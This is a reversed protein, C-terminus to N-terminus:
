ETNSVGQFCRHKGINRSDTQRRTKWDATSVQETKNRTAYLGGVRKGPDPRHSEESLRSASPYPDWIAALSGARKWAFEGAERTQFVKSVFTNQGHKSFRDTVLNGTQLLFTNMNTERRTSM